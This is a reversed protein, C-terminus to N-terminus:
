CSQMSYMMLFLYKQWPQEGSNNLVSWPCFRSVSRGPRSFSHVLANRIHFKKDADTYSSASKMGSKCAGQFNVPFCHTSPMNQSPLFWDTPLIKVSGRFVPLYTCSFHQTNCGSLPPPTTFIISCRHTKSLLTETFPNIATCCM